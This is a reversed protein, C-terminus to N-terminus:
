GFGGDHFLYKLIRGKVPFWNLELCHLCFSVGGTQFFWLDFFTEIKPNFISIPLELGEISKIIFLYNFLARSLPHCLLSAFQFGLCNCAQFSPVHCSYHPPQSSNWNIWIPTQHFSYVCLPYKILSYENHFSPKLHLHQLSSYAEIRKSLHNGCGRHGSCDTM